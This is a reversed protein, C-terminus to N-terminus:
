LRLRFGVANLLASMMLIVAACSASRIIAHQLDPEALREYWDGLHLISLWSEMGESILYALLVNSGAVALPWILWWARAVDGILYLLLWLAATICSSWLCWAPTADNKSIGFLPTAVIAAFAFGLCFLLTFRVRSWVTATDSTVLITALMVGAVTIAAQSGLTGGMDVIRTMFFHNFFGKHDAAFFATMIAVCALLATRHNRFLLYCIAGALYAWGILGLIGYWETRISFPSLTIIRHDRRDRYAFALFALTAFGLVRLGITVFRAPREWRKALGGWIRPPLTISCFALISAAFMLAHWRTPTWGMKEKSPGSEGNVMLIGLMLLSAARILVHGLIKWWAEGKKLRSGLAFPISMGVIFLFAPFVLDVFTMGSVGDKHRDSFHVMWDPVKEGAGAIDNVYIMTFMVLGRLADISLIREARSAAAARELPLEAATEVAASSPLAVTVSHILAV